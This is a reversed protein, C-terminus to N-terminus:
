LVTTISQDALLRVVVGSGDEGLGCSGPEGRLRLRCSEAPDVRAIAVLVNPRYVKLLGIRRGQPLSGGSNVRHLLETL